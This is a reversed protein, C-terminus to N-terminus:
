VKINIVLEYDDGAKDMDDLYDKDTYYYNDYVEYPVIDSGHPYRKQDATVTSHDGTRHHPVM